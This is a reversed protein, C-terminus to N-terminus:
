PEVLTLRGGPGRRVISEEILRAIEPELTDREIELGEALGALTINPNNRIFDIIRGPPVPRIAVQQAGAIVWCVVNIRQNALQRAFGHIEFIRNYPQPVFAVFIRRPDDPPSGFVFHVGQRQNLPPFLVPPITPPLQPALMVAFPEEVLLERVEVTLPILNGNGDFVVAVEGTFIRAAAGGPITINIRDNAVDDSVSVGPGIFNLETRTAVPNGEDQVTVRQAEALVGPLDTVNIGDVGGNQHTVAHPLPVRADSLRPDNAECVRGPTPTTAYDPQIQDGVIQLGNGVNASINAQGQSGDVADLGGAFNLTSVAPLIQVNDNSVAVGPIQINVREPDLADSSATVGVGTFNLRRPTGVPNGEDQIEVKQTDALVGSLNTVNIEDTGGDQHTIAHPLPERADSLRPDHQLCELLQVVLPMPYVLQRHIGRAADFIVNDIAASTPTIIFSTGQQQLAISALLVCHGPEAEACRPCEQFEQTFWARQLHADLQEASSIVELTSTALPDPPSMLALGTIAYGTTPTVTGGVEVLYTSHIVKGEVSPTVGMELTGDVLTFGAPLTDIVHIARGTVTPIIKRRVEFVDGQRVWRPVTREFEGVVIGGDEIDSRVVTLNM